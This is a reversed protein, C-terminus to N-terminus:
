VRFFKNGRQTQWAVSYVFRLNRWQNNQQQRKKSPNRVCCRSQLRGGGAAVRLSGVSKSLSRIELRYSGRSPPKEKTTSIMNPPLNTSFFIEIQGRTRGVRM